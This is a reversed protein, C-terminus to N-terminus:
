PAACGAERRKWASRHAREFGLLAQGGREGLHDSGIMDERIGVRPDRVLAVQGAAEGALRAQDYTRLVGGLHGVDDPQTGRM